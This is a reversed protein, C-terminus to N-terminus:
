GKDGHQLAARAARLQKKKEPDLAPYALKLSEM